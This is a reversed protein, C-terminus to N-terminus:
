LKEYKRKNVINSPSAPHHHLTEPDGCINEILAIITARDAITIEKIWLFRSL